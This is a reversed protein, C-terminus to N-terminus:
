FRVPRLTIRILDAPAIEIQPEMSGSCKALLDASIRRQSEWEIVERNVLSMVERAYKRKKKHLFFLNVIKKLRFTYISTITVSPLQQFLSEFFLVQMSYLVNTIERERRALTRIRHLPICARSFDELGITMWWRSSESKRRLYWARSRSERLSLRATVNNILRRTSSFNGACSLVM